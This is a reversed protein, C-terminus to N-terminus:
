EEKSKPGFPVYRIGGGKYFKTFFEVYHLRMGQIFPGLVGLFINIGHGIVLVLIAPIWYLMGMAIFQGVFENVVLALQVSAMGIGFLRAYSLTHGFLSPLEIIGIAGEGKVLLALAVLTVVAGYMTGGALMGFMELAILAVGVEFLIWSFGEVIADKLGHKNFANYAKLLFGINVHVLGVLISIILMTNIDHVRNLVPHHVFELGFFEGFVFGFVITSISAVMLINLFARMAKSPYPTMRKMIYALLFVFLGYGVDGLMFGFFFPFTLFMLVTPDFDFYKPLSYLDLFLEFANTPAPNDL